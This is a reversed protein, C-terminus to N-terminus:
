IAMLINIELTKDHAIHIFFKARESNNNNILFYKLLKSQNLASPSITVDAQYNSLNPTSFLYVVNHSM